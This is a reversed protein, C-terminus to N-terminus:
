KMNGMVNASFCPKPAFNKTFCSQYLDFAFQNPKNAKRGSNKPKIRPPLLVYLLKSFNCNTEYFLYCLTKFKFRMEISNKRKKSVIGGYFLKLLLSVRVLAFTNTKLATDPNVNNQTFIISTYNKM